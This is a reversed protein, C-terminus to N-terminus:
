ADYKLQYSGALSRECLEALMRTAAIAQGDNRFSFVAIAWGEVEPYVWEFCAGTQYCIEHCGDALTNYDNHEALSIHLEV